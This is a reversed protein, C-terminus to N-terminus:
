KAIAESETEKILMVSLLMVLNSPNPNRNHTTWLITKIICDRM